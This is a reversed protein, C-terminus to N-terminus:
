ECILRLEDISFRRDDFALRLDNYKLKKCGTYESM